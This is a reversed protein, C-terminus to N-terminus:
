NKQLERKIKEIDDEMVWIDFNRGQTRTFAIKKRDPPWTAFDQQASDFM